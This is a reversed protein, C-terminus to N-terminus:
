FIWKKVKKKERPLYINRGDYTTTNQKIKLKKWQVRFETVLLSHHSNQIKGVQAM